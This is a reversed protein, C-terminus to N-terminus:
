IMSCFHNLEEVLRKGSNNRSPLNVGKGRLYQIRNFVGRYSIGGLQDAIEQYTLGKAYLRILQKDRELRKRQSAADKRAPM